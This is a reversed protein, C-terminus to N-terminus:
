QPRRLGASSSARSRAAGVPKAASASASALPSITPARAATRSRRTPSIALSVLRMWFVTASSGSPWITM